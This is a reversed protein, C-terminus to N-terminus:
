SDSDSYGSQVKCMCESAESFKKLSEFIQSGSFSFPSGKFGIQSGITQGINQFQKGNRKRCPVRPMGSYSNLKVFQTDFDAWILIM